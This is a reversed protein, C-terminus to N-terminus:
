LQNAVCPMSAMSIEKPDSSVTALCGRARLQLTAARQGKRSWSQGLIVGSQVANTVMTM